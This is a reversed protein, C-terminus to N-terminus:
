GHSFGKIQQQSKLDFRHLLHEAYAPDWGPYISQIFNMHWALTARNYLRMDESVFGVDWKAEIQQAPMSKGLVQVEGRDQHILGVLIRITTSKGAGNPGIFGMISGQPLNIHVDSLKFDPYNKEVGALHVALPTM